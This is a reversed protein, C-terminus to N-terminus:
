SKLLSPKVWRTRYCCRSRRHTQLSVDRLIYGYYQNINQRELMPSNKICQSSSRARSRQVRDPRGVATVTKSREFFLRLFAVQQRDRRSRQQAAQPARDPGDREFV